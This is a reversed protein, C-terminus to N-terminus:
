RDGPMKVLKGNELSYRLGNITYWTKSQGGITLTTGKEHIGVFDGPPLCILRGYMDRVCKGPLQESLWKQYRFHEPMRLATSSGLLCWVGFLGIIAWEVTKAKVMLKNILIIQM